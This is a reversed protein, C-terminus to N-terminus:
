DEMVAGCNQGEPIDSIRYGSIDFLRSNIEGAKINTLYMMYTEGTSKKRSTVELIMGNINKALYWDGRQIHKSLM